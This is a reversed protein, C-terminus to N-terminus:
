KFHRRIMQNFTEIMWWNWNEIFSYNHMLGDKSFTIIRKPNEKWEQISFESSNRKVDLKHNFIMTYFFRKGADKYTDKKFIKHNYEIKTSTFRIVEVKNGDLFSIKPEKLYGNNENSPLEGISDWMNLTFSNNM